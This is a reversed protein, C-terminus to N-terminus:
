AIEEGNVAKLNPAYVARRKGSKFLVGKKTYPVGRYVCEPISGFRMYVTIKDVLVSGLHDTINDGINAKRNSLAYESHLQDLQEEQAEILNNLKEKYESAEV